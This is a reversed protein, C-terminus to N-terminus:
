YFSNLETLVETFVAVKRELEDRRRMTDNSPEVFKRCKDEFDPDSLGIVGRLKQELDPGCQLDLLLDHFVIQAAGEAYRRVAIHYFARTQAMIAIGHEEDGSLPPSRRTIGGKMGGTAVKAGAEIGESIADPLSEGDSLAEIGTSLAETGARCAVGAVPDGMAESIRAASYGLGRLADPVGGCIRVGTRLSMYHDLYVQRYHFYESRGFVLSSAKERQISKLLADRALDGRSEIHSKVEEWIRGGPKFSGFHEQVITKLESVIQHVIDKLMSETPETWVDVSKEMYDKLIGYPHNGPLERTRGIDARTMVEDLYVTGPPLLNRPPSFNFTKIKPLLPPFADLDTPNPVGRAEYTEFPWFRPHLHYLLIDVFEELRRRCVGVLEPVRFNHIDVAASMKRGFKWLIENAHRVPDRISTPLLALEAQAEKLHRQVGAITVPLREVIWELLRANLYNALNRTGLRQQIDLDRAFERWSANEQFFGEEQERAAEQTM